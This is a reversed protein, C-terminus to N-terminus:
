NALSELSSALVRGVYDGYLIGKETLAIAEDDVTIFDDQRLRALTPECLRLLDIGHRKKFARRDFRILKMGLIVDRTMMELDNYVYGRFLPLEGSEILDTYRQLDNTNQYAWNGLSGFASAGFAYVDVGQWKTTTHRQVYQGGRTFTFFNVPIYGARTFAELAHRAFALEEDDSPLSINQRRLQAYYETNAYLELKYVTVSPAGTEIARRVSYAWTEPTEGELGSILDINVVAGTAMATEIAALAQKETDRRGTRFVIDDCFSQIGLNIRNVGHNKLIDAKSPTLSVPEAEFNIEPDALTLNRRLAQMIRNINDANLLTPTGGGFYVSIVPRERLQFRETAIEIERCLSGVYRDIEALQTTRLTTTKYHCYACRQICYPLHLYVNLPQRSLGQEAAEKRWQRYDPYNTVFGRRTLEWDGQIANLM